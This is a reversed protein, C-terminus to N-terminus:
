HSQRWSDSRGRARANAPKSCQDKREGGSGESTAAEEARAADDGVDGMLLV